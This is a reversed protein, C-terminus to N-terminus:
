QIEIKIVDKVWFMSEMGPMVLNLTNEESPSLLCDQCGALAALDIESSYGDSAILKAKTADEAPKAMAILDALRVGVYDVMEDKKPHKANVTVMEMDAIEDLMFPMTFEVNGEITFDGTMERSIGGTFELEAVGKVWTSTEFGPMVLGPVDEEDIVLVCDACALVDAAPIEIEYGDSARVVLMEADEAPGTLEFLDSLLIGEYEVEGKKPHNAKITSMEMAKLDDLMWGMPAAVSGMMVVDGEVPGAAAAPAAPEEASEAAADEMPEIGLKISEIAGIMQDKELGEGVLRLPFYKDPLDGGNMQFAVIWEDNFAAPQSELEISYGDVATITITYGAEALDEDFARSEHAVADDVRGLLYWLPIGGWENGEKDTWVKLHCHPSSGSEFTGRDMNESIAGELQLFWNAAVPKVEVRTVWKVAWHGDSIQSAEDSAIVSRLTGEMEADMLEGERQYAIMATLPMTPEIEVGTSPEYTLFDKGMVQEYSYTISYGDEAYVVMGMTEDIGGVQEALVSLPIGKYVAPPTISGASSLIGAYGEYSELQDLDALSLMVSQDGNFVELVPEDSLGEAAPEAPAAPVETAEVVAAPAEEVVPAQCGGLLFALVLILVFWPKKQM